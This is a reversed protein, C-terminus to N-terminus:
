AMWAIGTLRGTFASFQVYSLLWYFLQLRVLSIWKLMYEVQGAPGAESVYDWGGIDLVALRARATEDGSNVYLKLAQRPGIELESGRKQGGPPISRYVWDLSNGLVWIKPINV